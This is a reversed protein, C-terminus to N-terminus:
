DGSLLAEAIRSVESSFLENDLALAIRQVLDMFLYLDEERFGHAKQRSDVYVAGLVQSRSLMPVCLACEIKSVELTDVLEDHEGTRINSIVIPNGKDLVRKVIRRSYGGSKDGAGKKSKTLAETIQGIRSDFLIFAGRDIGKMVSLIEDLIKELAEKVSPSRRLINSVDYLFQLKEQDTNPRDELFAGKKPIAERRIEMTDMFTSSEDIAEKSICIVSKGLAIPDGEHVEVEHGPQLSAGDLYTGNLSKLDTIFYREGKQWIKLHKRSVTNEEVQVDNDLSRGVFNVGERLKFSRGREPGNLLYLQAM